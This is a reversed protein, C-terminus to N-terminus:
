RNEWLAAGAARDHEAKCDFCQHMELMAEYYCQRVFRLEAQCLYCKGNKPARILVWREAYPPRQPKGIIKTM